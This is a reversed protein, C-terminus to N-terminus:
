KFHYLIGINFIDNTDDGLGFDYFPYIRFGDAVWLLMGLEFYEQTLSQDEIPYSKVGKVGVYSTLWSTLEMDLNLAFDGGLDGSQENLVFQYNGTLTFNDVIRKRLLVNLAPSIPNSNPDTTLNISPILSIGPLYKSDNWLYAKMGVRVSQDFVNDMATEMKVGNWAIQLEYNKMIGYRLLTTVGLDKFDGRKSFSFYTESQLDKKKLVELDWNDLPRNQATLSSSFIMFLCICILFSFKESLNKLNFKSCILYKVINSKVKLIIAM